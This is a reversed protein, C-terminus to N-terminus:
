GMSYKATEESAAVGIPVFSCTLSLMQIKWNSDLNTDTSSVAKVGAQRGGMPGSRYAAM